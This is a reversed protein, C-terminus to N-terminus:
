RFCKLCGNGGGLDLLGLLCAVWFFSSSTGALGLFFRESVVFPLRLSFSSPLFIYEFYYSLDFKTSRLSGGTIFIIIGLIERKEAAINM